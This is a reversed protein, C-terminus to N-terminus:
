SGVIGKYISRSQESHINMNDLFGFFPALAEFDIDATVNVTAGNDVDITSPDPDASLPDCDATTGDSDIVVDIDDAEVNVGIALDLAAAIIGDCDLYNPLGDGDTDGVTTAYRAGERAVNWVQAHTYLLRSFEIIGFLMLLLLPAVFAM